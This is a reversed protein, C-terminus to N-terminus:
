RADNPPSARREPRTLWRGTRAVSDIRDEIRRLGLTRLEEVAASPSRFCGIQDSLARQQGATQVWVVSVPADGVPMRCKAPDRDGPRAYETFSAEAIERFLSQAVEPSISDTHMEQLTASSFHIAGTRSIRVRYAPCPGLCISRTLTVSDAELIFRPPTSDRWIIPHGESAAARKGADARDGDRWCGLALLAVLLIHQRL